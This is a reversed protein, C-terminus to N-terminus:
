PDLPLTWSAMGGKFGNRAQRVPGSQDFGFLQVFGHVGEVHGSSQRFERRGRHLVPILLGSCGIATVPCPGGSIREVLGVCVKGESGLM